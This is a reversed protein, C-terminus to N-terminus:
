PFPQGKSAAEGLLDDGLLISLFTPYSLNKPTKREKRSTGTKEKVKAKVANVMEDFILGVYDLPLDFYMGYM